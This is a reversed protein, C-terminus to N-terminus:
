LGIMPDLNQEVARTIRNSVASMTGIAVSDCQRVRMLQLVLLDIREVATMGSALARALSSPQALAAVAHLYHEFPVLTSNPAGIAELCTNVANYLNRSENVDQNVAEFISVPEGQACVCRCNGCVLMPWKSLPAFLSGRALLRVPARGWPTMVRSADRAVRALLAQDDERAFPAFKFNSALTVKLRGPRDPNPRVAQPDPSAMTIRTSPLADWVEPAHYAKHGVEVPLSTIRELFPPPPMNMISAVPIRDGIRRLLDQIEPSGAQPEQIALFVLDFEGPDVRDPTTVSLGGPGIPAYLVQTASFEIEVGDRAIAAVEKSRGIVTVPHGAAAIKAAPLLGYSAGIVLTRIPHPCADPATM